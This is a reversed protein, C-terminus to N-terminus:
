DDLDFLDRLADAHREADGADALDKLRVTPGHLLTNVIGRTLADVADRQRDDLTALKRALRGLEDQRVDEAHSRLDRITPEILSARTWALFRGAEEDVIARAEAVVAGTTGSDVLERLSAVNVV